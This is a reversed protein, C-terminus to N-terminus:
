RRPPAHGRGPDVAGLGRDHARGEGEGARGHRRGPRSADDFRGALLYAEALWLSPYTVWLRSAGQPAGQVLAELVPVQPDAPGLRARALAPGAQATQAFVAYGASQGLSTAREFTDAAGQADNARLLVFGRTMTAVMLAYPRQRAEGLAVAASALERAEDLDGLEALCPAMVARLQVERPATFFAGPRTVDLGREILGRGTSVARREDGVFSAAMVLCFGADGVQEPDTSRAGAARAQEAAALVDPPAKCMLAHRMKLALVDVLRRHDELRECMAEAEVVYRGLRDVERVPLLAQGCGIRPDIALTLREATDPMRSIAAFGEEYWTISQQNAGRGAVHGARCFYRAAQDWAGVERCHVALADVHDDLRDAYLSELATAVVGHIARRRTPLMAALTVERIRDHSFDLGSPRDDLMRRRVLEEVHDLAVTADVGSAAQLLRLEFPRGIVAAAELVRRTPAELRDLRQRILIRVPEAVPAGAARADLTGEEFARMTEVVALPNGEGAHWIADLVEAETARDSGAALIRVLADASERSLASVPLADMMGARTLEAIVPELCQRYEPEEDRMTAVMLVRAGAVRRAVTTFLRLTMDDAWHMDELVLTLPAAAAWHDVVRGVAEFLRMPEASASSEGAEAVEPLLSALEARYPAGAAALAAADGVLSTRLLEIWAGLVFDRHSQYCHGIVVRAGEDRARACLEDVLRTKGVGAEGSIVVVRGIGAATDDVLRALRAM